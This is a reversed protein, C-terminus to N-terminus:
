WSWLLQGTLTGKAIETRGLKCYTEKQGEVVGNQALYAKAAAIIRAKDEPSNIFADIQAKSYGLSLAYRKLANAKGLARFIRAGITPCNRRIGEGIAAAILSENIYKNQSLPPLGGARAPLLGLGLVVGLCFMRVSRVFVGTQMNNSSKM